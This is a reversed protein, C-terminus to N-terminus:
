SPVWEPEIGSEILKLYQAARTEITHYKQVKSQGNKAIREREEDHNLLFRIKNKLDSMSEYVIIDEGNVFWEEIGPVRHTLYTTGFGMCQYLRVSFGMDFETKAIGHYRGANLGMKSCHYAKAADEGFLEAGKVARSFPSLRLMPNSTIGAYLRNQEVSDARTGLIKKIPTVLPRPPEFGWGSGWIKLRCCSAVNALIQKREPRYVVQNNGLFTVDCEFKKWEDTTIHSQSHNTNAFYHPAFHANKNYETFDKVLGRSTVLVCDFLPLVDGLWAFGWERDRATYADPYWFVLKIGLSAISKYTDMTVTDGRTVFLCDPRFETALEFLKAPDDSRYDFYRLELGLKEFTAGLLMGNQDTNHTRCVMIMRKM